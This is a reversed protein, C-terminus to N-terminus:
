RMMRLMFLTFAIGHWKGSQNKVVGIESITKSRPAREFKMVM